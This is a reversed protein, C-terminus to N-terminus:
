NGLGQHKRSAALSRASAREWVLAQAEWNEADRDDGVYPCVKLMQSLESDNDFPIELGVRARCRAAQHGMFTSEWLCLESLRLPEAKAFGGEQYINTFFLGRVCALVVAFAAVAAMLRHISQRHWAM